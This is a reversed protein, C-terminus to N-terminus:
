RLTGCAIVLLVSCPLNRVHNRNRNRNANSLADDLVSAVSAQPAKSLFWGNRQKTGFKGSMLLICGVRKYPMGWFVRIGKSGMAKPDMLGVPVAGEYGV